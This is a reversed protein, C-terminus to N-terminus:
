DQCGRSYEIVFSVFDAPSIIGDPVGYGPMEPHFASASTLDSNRLDGATYANAFLMFDGFTHMGDTNLDAPCRRLIHTANAPVNHLVRSHGDPWTIRVAELVDSEGLGYHRPLQSQSKYGNGAFVQDRRWTGDIFPEVVAGIAKTNPWQGRIDLQIWNRGETARNIYLRTNQNAANMLAVDLAGDGTVDAVAICYSPSTDALGYQQALDAMPKGPATHMFFSNAGISNAVILELRGDHTADFFASGWGLHFAIVGAELALNTFTGDGNNVFLANGQPKNTVYLDLLGNGNFDAVTACMADLCATAGIEAAVETFYGGENRYFKDRGMGTDACAQIGKDEAVYIDMDGDNDFDFFTGQFSAHDSDCGWLEAVEVFTGDGQNLYLRNPEMAFGGGSVRPSATRNAVYLDLWGNGTLDVWASGAGAGTCGLGAQATVDTFTWDGNNRFLRDPLTWVTIYIDVFGDGDYDAFSLGSAHPINPIGVLSTLNSFVGAGNNRYVGVKGGSDGLTILDQDGDNDLDAFSLGAGFQESIGFTWPTRYNIGRQLAEDMFRPPDTQKSGSKAKADASEADGSKGDGSKADGPNAPAYGAFACLACAAALAGAAIGSREPRTPKAPVSVGARRSARDARLLLM